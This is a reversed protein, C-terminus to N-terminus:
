DLAENGERRRVQRKAPLVPAEWTGAFGKRVHRTRLGRPAEAGSRKPGMARESAETNGEVKTVTDAKGRAKNRPEIM